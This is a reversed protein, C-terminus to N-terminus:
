SKATVPLVETNATNSRLLRHLILIQYANCSVLPIFVFWTAMHSVNLASLTEITTAVIMFFMTPIFAARNTGKVKFLTVVIAVILMAVGIIVDSTIDREEGLMTRLFMVDLLVFVTLVVQIYQWGKKFLGLAIYNLTLYAFFGMQAYVSIMFGSIALQFVNIVVDVPGRLNGLEQQFLQMSLGTLLM